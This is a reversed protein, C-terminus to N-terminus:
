RGVLKLQAPRPSSDPGADSRLKRLPGTASLDLSALYPDPKVPAPATSLIEFQGGPASKGLRPTLFCHNNEMDVRIDGQPAPLRCSSLAERVGGVDITGALRIAQALLLASNYSAEADASTVKNIGFRHRYRRIFSINESTEISQFYVSSALHGSAAPDGIQVLEPESLSCSTIPMKQPSFRWDKRGLEAFARFFAYSSEGILTNFIFDPRLDRIEAIIASVDTSGVPLYKESLVSGGAASMMARMVRNNEWPWIYNSGCCYARAGHNKLVYEVLPVIHQNPSAGLYIM